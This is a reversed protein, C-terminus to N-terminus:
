SVGSTLAYFLDIGGLSVATVVIGAILVGISILGMAKWYPINFLFALLSGTYSGTGPLPIAVVIILALSGYRYFKKSHRRHSVGYLWDVSRRIFNNDPTHKHVLDTFWPLFLLIFFNPIMNGIVAFLYIYWISLDPRTALFWPITGRLETIPLMSPIVIQLEVPM